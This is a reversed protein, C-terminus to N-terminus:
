FGRRSNKVARSRLSATDLVWVEPEWSRLTRPWCSSYGFSKPCASVVSKRKLSEGARRTIDKRSVELLLWQPM